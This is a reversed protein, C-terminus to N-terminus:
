DLTIVECYPAAARALRRDATILPAKLKEALAVYFADYASITDRLEWARFVLPAHRSRLVPARLWAAVFDRAREPSVEGHNVLRRMASVYEVDILEPAFLKARPLPTKTARMMANVAASNDLVVNM